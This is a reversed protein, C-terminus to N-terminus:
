AALMIARRPAGAVRHTRARPVRKVPLTARPCFGPVDRGRHVRARGTGEAGDRRDGGRRHHDNEEASGPRARLERSTDDEARLVPFVRLPKEGVLEELGVVAAIEAVLDAAPLGDLELLVVRGEGGGDLLVLIAVVDVGLPR